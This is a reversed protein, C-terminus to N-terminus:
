KGASSDLTAQVRVPRDAHFVQKYAGIWDTAIQRQAEELGIQGSCVMSHLRTELADKAQANWVTAHYPEPWLNEVDDNGGLQPNILYDVQFARSARDDLGYAAFIQRQKEQPVVPDLDNDPMMCLESLEINHVSGPTISRNPEPGTDEYNVLANQRPAAIHRYLMAGVGILFLAAIQWLLRLRLWEPWRSAATAAMRHTLSERATIAANSPPPLVEVESLLGVFADRRRRCEACQALHDLATDAKHPPLEGDMMLLLTEDSLHQSM